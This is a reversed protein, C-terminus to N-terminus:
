IAWILTYRRATLNFIRKEMLDETKGHILCKSKGYSKKKKQRSTIQNQWSTKPKATLNNTKGYTKQNQRSVWPGVYSPFRLKFFMIVKFEVSIMVNNARPKYSTVISEASPRM